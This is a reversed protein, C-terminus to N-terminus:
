ALKLFKGNGNIATHTHDRFTMIHNRNGKPKFSIHIWGKNIKGNQTTYELIMQDFPIQNKLAVAIDYVQGVGFQIDVAEGLFHQSTKSGWPPNGVQRFCSSITFGPYLKHIPELVNLALNRMNGVIQPITLGQQSVIKKIGNIQLKGVTFNPSLKFSMPVDSLSILDDDGKIVEPEKIKKPSTDEKTDDPAPKTLDEMQIEGEDERQQNWATSDGEDPTEFVMKDEPYPQTEELRELQPEYPEARKYDDGSIDKLEPDVSKDSNMYINPADMNIDKTGQIEITDKTTKLFFQSCEIKLEERIDLHMHGHVEAEVDNKCVLHTDGDVQLEANNKVYLNASGEVTINCNGSIVVNNDRAFIQYGDGIIKHVETGNSDIEIFTGARHYLHVRENDPTDDFELIHGSESQYVHNYPYRASYPPIPQDWKEPATNVRTKDPKNSKLEVRTNLPQSNAIDIFRKRTSKKEAVVTQAIGQNRALRNTDPEKILGPIPYRSNPDKFGITTEVVAEAIAQQETKTDGNNPSSTGIEQSTTSPLTEPLKGAVSKFGIDYYEKSTVNSSDKKITGNTLARAGAWGVLHAAALLGALTERNTQENIVGGQKLYTFNKKLEELFASDQVASSNFWDTLSKIGNKGLWYKDEKLQSNSGAGSVYRIDTLMMWGMQYAGVYFTKPNVAKYDGSSERQKLADRLKIQDAMPLMDELKATKISEVTRTAEKPKSDYNETVLKGGSGTTISQGSGDTVNTATSNDSGLESTTKGTEIDMQKVEDDKVFINGRSQPIGGVTGIMVPQQQDSDLFMIAVWTGEVPGVPTYGIGSMSASTIPAIPYAWPLDDTKIDNKNESHLGFVRVKCRGLRMPDDRSECVGFYLNNM